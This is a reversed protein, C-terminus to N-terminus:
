HLCSEYVLCVLCISWSSCIFGCCSSLAGFPPATAPPLQHATIREILWVLRPLIETSTTARHRHLFIYAIFDRSRDGPCLHWWSTSSITTQSCDRSSRKGFVKNAKEWHLIVFVVTESVQEGLSLHVRVILNSDQRRRCLLSFLCFRVWISWKPIGKSRAKGHPLRYHM